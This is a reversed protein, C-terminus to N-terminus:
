SKIFGEIFKYVEPACKARLLDHCALQKVQLFSVSYAKAFKEIENPNM